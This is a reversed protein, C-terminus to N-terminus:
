EKVLLIMALRAGAELCREIAEWEERTVRIESVAIEDKSQFKDRVQNIKKVDELADDIEGMLPIAKHEM